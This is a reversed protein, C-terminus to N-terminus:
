REALRERIENVAKRVGDQHPNIELAREYCELSEELNGLHAHCHGMGSWAGFHSPMLEITRRCDDLSKLYDEILYHAIARQNYAEAFSPCMQIARNFHNVAHDFERRGLALTGRCVQHNADESGCRFWIAWMAHEAMQNVM